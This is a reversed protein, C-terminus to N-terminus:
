GTPSVPEPIFPNHEEGSAYFNMLRVGELIARARGNAEEEDARQAKRELDEWDKPGQPELLSRRRGNPSKREMAREFYSYCDIGQAIRVVDETELKGGAKPLGRIMTLLRESALFWEGHQREDAFCRHLIHETGAPADVLAMLRLLVPSGCQLGLLRWQVNRTRGIKILTPETSARLFYVWERFRLDPKKLKPFRWLQKIAAAPSDIM